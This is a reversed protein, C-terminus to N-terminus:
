IGMLIYAADVQQSSKLTKSLQYWDNSFEETKHGLKKNFQKKGQSKTKLNKTEWIRVETKLNNIM